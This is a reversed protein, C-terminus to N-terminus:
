FNKVSQICAGLAGCANLKSFMDSISMNPCGLKRKINHIVKRVAVETVQYKAAIERYPRQLILHQIYEQEKGTLVLDGFKAKHFQVPVQNVHEDFHLFKEQLAERNEIELMAKPKYKKIQAGEYSFAHMWHKVANLQHQLLPKQSVVCYMEFGNETKITWDFAQIAQDSNAPIDQTNKAQFHKEEIQFIVESANWHRIGPAIRSALDHHLKKEIFECYQGYGSGLPLFTNEKLDIFNCSFEEIGLYTLNQKIWAESSHCLYKMNKHHIHM